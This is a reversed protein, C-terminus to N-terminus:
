GETKFGPRRAGVPPEIEFLYIPRESPCILSSAFTVGFGSHRGRWTADILISTSLIGKSLVNDIM